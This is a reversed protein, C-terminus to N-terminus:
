NKGPWVIPESFTITANELKMAPHLPLLGPWFYKFCEDGVANTSSGEETDCDDQRMDAIQLSAKTTKQGPITSAWRDTAALEGYKTKKGDLPPQALTTNVGLITYLDTTFPVKITPDKKFVAQFWPKSAPKSELEDGETDHPYVKVSMEGDENQQWDFKALHKPINWNTRGNFATYKQSVYIRSIRVNNKQGQGEPGEYNYFGPIVFLEDYPGVPSDHYRILQIMGIGGLYTGDTQLKSGREFPGFAKKPLKTPIFTFGYVDGHLIWPAPVHEIPQPSDNNWDAADSYNPGTYNVPIDSRGHHGFILDSVGDVVDGVAGVVGANVTCAATAFASLASLKM